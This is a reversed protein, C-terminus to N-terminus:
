SDPLWKVFGSRGYTYIHILSLRLATIGTHIDFSDVTHIGLALIEKAYEEVKRTPTCLIAVDVDKLEKINKVVTYAQRKYVDVCQKHYIILSFFQQHRCLFLKDYVNVLLVLSDRICM